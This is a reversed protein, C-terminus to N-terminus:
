PSVPALEVRDNLWATLRISRGNIKQVLEPSLPINFMHPESGGCYIAVDTRNSVKTRIAAIFEDEAYIYVALSQPNNKECAWGTVRGGAPDLKIEDLRGLVPRVQKYTNFYRKGFDIQGQASFHIHPCANNACDPHGADDNSALDESTAWGFDGFATGANKIASILNPKITATEPQARRSWEGALFPLRPTALDGRTSNVLETLRTAYAAPSDMIGAPVAVMGSVAITAGPLPPTRTSYDILGLDGEGQHWLFAVVRNNGGPAALALRTRAIMDTYLIKNDDSFEIRQDWHLISSGGLAAPVILVKRKSSLREKAYARAFSMGFSVGPWTDVTVNWAQLTVTAPVIKGDDAKYRGIQDIRTDFTTGDPDTYTGLGAPTANSQGGIVIIDYGPDDIPILKRTVDEQAAGDTQTSAPARFPSCNQFPSLIVLSLGALIVIKAGSGM